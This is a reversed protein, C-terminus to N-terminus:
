SRPPPDLLELSLSEFSQEIVVEVADTQHSVWDTQYDQPIVAPIASCCWCLVCDNCTSEGCCDDCETVFETALASGVSLMLGLVVLVTIYRTNKTLM